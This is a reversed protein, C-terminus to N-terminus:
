SKLTSQFRDFFVLAIGFLILVSSVIIRLTLPEAILIVGGLSAIVPVILQIVSAKTSKLFPLVSYWVAYGVGSALAGSLIAFIFGYSNINIKEFTFINLIISFPVAKIFNGATTATPNKSGGGRLSYIGWALGAIMMFVSSFLSPSSIGPLLLYVLGGFALIIGFFKTFDLREGKWIGFGIMTIQVTGFLLLAGTAATLGVYAFSFCAAYVFLAFASKWNGSIITQRQTICVLLWLTFAGSFLRISTFSSADIETGKLALRCLLSNAAFAILSFSTLFFLRLKSM